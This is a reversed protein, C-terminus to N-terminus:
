SPPARASRASTSPYREAAVPAAAERPRRPPREEERVGPVDVRAPDAPLADPGDLKGRGDEQDTGVMMTLTRADGEAVGRRPPAREAVDGDGPREDLLEDRRPRGEPEVAAGVPALVRELHDDGEQLQGARVDRDGEEREALGVEVDAEADPARHRLRHRSELGRALPDGEDDRGIEIM